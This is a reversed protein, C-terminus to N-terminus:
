VICFLIYKHHERYCYGRYMNLVRLLVAAWVSAVALFFFFFINRCQPWQVKRLGRHDHDFITVRGSVQKSSSFQGAIHCDKSKGRFLCVLVCLLLTGSASTCLGVSHQRGIGKVGDFEDNQTSLSCVVQLLPLSIVHSCSRYEFSLCSILHQMEPSVCLCMKAVFECLPGFEHMHHFLNSAAGSRKMVPVAVPFTNHVTRKSRRRAFSSNPTSKEYSQRFM